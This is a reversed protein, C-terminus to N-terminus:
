SIKEKSSWCWVEFSEAYKCDAKWLTWTEDGYLALSLIYGKMVKKRLNLDLKSTFLPKKENFTAKTM